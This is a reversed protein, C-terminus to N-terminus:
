NTIVKSNMIEDKKWLNVKKLLTLSYIFNEANSPALNKHSIVM